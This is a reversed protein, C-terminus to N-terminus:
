EGASSGPPADPGPPVRPVRCVRELLLAAAALALSAGAGTVAIPLDHAPGPRGQRGATYVILAAYVGAALAGVLSSAKAWAAVRAVALVAIPRTRPRGALRARVSVAAAAEAAALLLLLIPATGPLPPLRLYAVRLGLYGALAACAALLALVRVNTPKM